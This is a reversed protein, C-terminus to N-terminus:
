ISLMVATADDSPKFRLFTQCDPDGAEVNRIECLVNEVGNM